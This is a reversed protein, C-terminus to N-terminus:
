GEEVVNEFCLGGERNELGTGTLPEIFVQEQGVTVLDGWVAAASGGFCDGCM